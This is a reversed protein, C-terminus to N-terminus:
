AAMREMSAPSRYGIGSHLRRSNHFGKIYAFRDRRADDRTAYVRHHIREVKLAHVLSEMPANGLCNGKRSMSPTIGAAALVQRYAHAAYRATEVPRRM